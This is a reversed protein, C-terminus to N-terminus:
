DNTLHECEKSGIHSLTVNVSYDQLVGRLLPISYDFSLHNRENKECSLIIELNNDYLLLDGKKIM